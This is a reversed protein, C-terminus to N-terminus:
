PSGRNDFAERRAALKAPEVFYHSFLADLTDLTWAAEDPTVELYEDTLTSM